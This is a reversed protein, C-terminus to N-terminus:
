PEASAPRATLQIRRARLCSQKACPELRGEVELWFRSDAQLRPDLRFGKGAAAKGVVWIATDGDKLVFADVDRGPLDPVDGFLNAGRFQGVVKVSRGGPGAGQVLDALGGGSGPRRALPTADFMSLFSITVRPLGPDPAPLVPLDPDEIKDLDEGNIYQKPRIRRVVGVVDVSRGMLMEFENGEAVSLLLVQDREERLRYDGRDPGTEFTGRTRVMRQQHFQPHSVIEHLSVVEVDGYQSGLSTGIKVAPPRGAPVQQTGAPMAALVLLVFGGPRM